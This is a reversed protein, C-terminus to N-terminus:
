VHIPEIPRFLGTKTMDRRLEFRAFASIVDIQSLNNFNIKTWDDRLVRVSYLYENGTQGTARNPRQSYASLIVTRVAPSASFAEGIIRFGVAHVHQMYLKQIQTVGMEKVSLRYGRQPVSATKKPMEDIEPLDVDLAIVGDALVSFDVLTERPWVIDLLVEEIYQEITKTDGSVLRDILQHHAVQTADFDTKQKEWQAIQEAYAELAIQNKKEVKALCNKFFRCFFGPAKPVPKGPKKPEFPPPEFQPTLPASTHFHIEALSEIQANLEDCKQQILAKIKDGQQKKATAIYTESLPNGEADEFSLVGDDSISAKISLTRVQSDSQQNPASPALRQRSYFGTGPIGTNLYTGRKGIGISAGRPGLTWSVGSGSFNMRIGPALKISKRFLVGM